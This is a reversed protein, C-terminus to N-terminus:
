PCIRPAPPACTRLFGSGGPYLPRRHFSGKQNEKPEQRDEKQAQSEQRLGWTGLLDGIGFYHRLALIHLGM